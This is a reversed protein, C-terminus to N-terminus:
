FSFYDRSPKCLCEPYYIVRHFKFLISVFFSDKTICIKHLTHIYLCTYYEIAIIFLFGHLFVALFERFLLVTFFCYLSTSSYFCEINLWVYRTSQFILMLSRAVRRTDRFCRFDLFADDFFPHSLSIPFFPVLNTASICRGRREVVSIIYDRQKKNRAATYAVGYLHSRATYSLLYRSSTSTSFLLRFSTTCKQLKSGPSLSLSLPSHSLITQSLASLCVTQSRFQKAFYASVKDSRGLPYM